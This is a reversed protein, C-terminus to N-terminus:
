SYTDYRSSKRHPLSTQKVGLLPCQDAARSHESQVLLLFGVEIVEDARGLLPISTAM